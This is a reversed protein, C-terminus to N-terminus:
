PLSNRNVQSGSEVPDHSLGTILDSAASPNLAVGQRVLPGEHRALERLISLPTNSNYALGHASTSRFIIYLLLIAVLVAGLAAIPLVFFLPFM